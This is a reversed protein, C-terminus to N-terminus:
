DMQVASQGGIIGPTVGVLFGVLFGVFLGDATSSTGGGVGTVDNPIGFIIRSLAFGVNGGIGLGVKVTILSPVGRRGVNKPPVKASDSSFSWSSSASFLSVFAEASSELSLASKVADFGSSSFLNADSSYRSEQTLIRSSLLAVSLKM